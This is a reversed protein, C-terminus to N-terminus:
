ALYIKDESDLGKQIFSRVKAIIDKDNLFILTDSDSIMHDPKTIWKSIVWAEASGELNYHENHYWKVVEKRGDRKLSEAVWPQPDGDPVEISPDPYHFLPDKERKCYEIEKERIAWFRDIGDMKILAESNFFIIYNRVGKSELETNVPCVFSDITEDCPDCNFGLHLNTNIQPIYGRISYEAPEVNMFIFIPDKEPNFEKKLKHRKGSGKSTKKYKKNYASKCEKCYYNKAGKGFESLPKEQRCGSCIRGGMLSFTEYELNEKNEM